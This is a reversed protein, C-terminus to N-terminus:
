KIKVIEELYNQSSRKSVGEILVQFTKGVDRKNSLASLEKQLEIIEDLRRSKITEEVNDVFRKAAVLM